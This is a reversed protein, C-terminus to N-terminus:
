VSSGVAKMRKRSEEILAHLRKCEVAQKVDHVRLISAGRQLALLNLAMTGYLAEEPFINLPKYIMSKRSIGVLLPHQGIKLEELSLLLDYNAQTTKGFGFGPDLIIRSAGQQYFRDLQQLLFDRVVKVVGQDLPNRQMTEPTGIMHMMVYPLDNRGIIEAMQPDALGGSIDNIIDAGEDMMARAIGSRFTDVSIILEPFSKRIHRIAPLLKKLEDKEDTIIAGPRTSVAGLDFIDVGELVMRHATDTLQNLELIRSSEYFSDSTLNLIGMVLPNADGITKGKIEFM